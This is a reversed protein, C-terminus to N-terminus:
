ATPLLPLPETQVPHQWTPSGVARTARPQTRVCNHCVHHRRTSICATCHLILWGPHTCPGSRQAIGAPQHHGCNQPLAPANGERHLLFPLPGPHWSRGRYATTVSCPVPGHTLPGQAQVQQAGQSGGHRQTDLMEAPGASPPCWPPSITDQPLLLFALDEEPRGAERPCQTTGPTVTEHSRTHCRM